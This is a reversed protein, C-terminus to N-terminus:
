PATLATHVAQLLQAPMFPKPLFTRGSRVIEAQLTDQDSYGSIFIVRMSRIGRPSSTGSSSRDMATPLIVDSILLRISSGHQELVAEAERPECAAVVEYGQRILVRQVLDRITDDDELGIIRVGAPSEPLAEATFPGPTVTHPTRSLPLLVEFTSIM